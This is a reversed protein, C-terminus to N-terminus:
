INFNPSWASNFICHEPLPKGNMITKSLGDPVQKFRFGTSFHQGFMGVSPGM